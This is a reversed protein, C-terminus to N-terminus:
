NFSLKYITNKGRLKDIIKASIKTIYKNLSALIARDEMDEHRNSSLCNRYVESILDSNFRIDELIEIEDLSNQPLKGNGVQLLYNAFDTQESDVHMNEALSFIKFYQM